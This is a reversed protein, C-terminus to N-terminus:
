RQNRGVLSKPVTQMKSVTCHHINTTLEGGSWSGSHKQPETIIRILWKLRFAEVADDSM